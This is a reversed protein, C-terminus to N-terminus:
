APLPYVADALETVPHVICALLDDLTAIGSSVGGATVLVATVAAGARQGLGPTRAHLCPLDKHGACLRV